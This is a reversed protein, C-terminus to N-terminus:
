FTVLATKDYRARRTLSFITRTNIATRDDVVSACSAPFTLPFKDEGGQGVQVVGVLDGPGLNFDEQGHHLHQPIGFNPFAQTDGISGYPLM